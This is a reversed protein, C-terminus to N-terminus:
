NGILLEKIENEDVGEPLFKQISDGNALAERFETASISDQMEFM